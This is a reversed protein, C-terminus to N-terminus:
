HDYKEEIRTQQDIKYQKLIEILKNFEYKSISGMDFEVILESHWFRVISKAIEILKRIDKISFKIEQIILNKLYNNM